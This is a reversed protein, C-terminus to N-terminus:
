ILDELNKNIKLLMKERATISFTRKDDKDAM